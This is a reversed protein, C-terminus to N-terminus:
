KRPSSLRLFVSGGGVCVCGKPSSYEMSVDVCGCTAGWGLWFGALFGPHCKLSNLNDLLSVIM